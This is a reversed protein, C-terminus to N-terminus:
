AAVDGNQELLLDPVDGSPVALRAGAPVDAFDQTVFWTGDVERM